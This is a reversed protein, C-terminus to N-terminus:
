VVPIDFVFMNLVADGVVEITTANKSISQVFSFPPWLYEKEKKYRKFFAYRVRILWFAVCVSM